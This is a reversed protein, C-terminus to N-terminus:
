KSALAELPIEARDKLARWASNGGLKSERALVKGDCRLGRKKFRASRKRAWDRYHKRWFEEREALSWGARQPFRRKYHARSVEAKPACFLNGTAFNTSDGDRFGVQWGEPIGRGTRDMWMRHHLQEREGTTARYYGKTVTYRRGGYEIVPQFNRPRLPLKRARFLLYM